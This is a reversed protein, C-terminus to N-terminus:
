RPLAFATRKTNDGSGSAIVIFQRGSSSAFTMPSANSRAGLDASWLEEGSEKDFAYLGM